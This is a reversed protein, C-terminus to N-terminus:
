QRKDSSVMLQTELKKAIRSSRKEIEMYVCGTEAASLVYCVSNMSRVTFFADM